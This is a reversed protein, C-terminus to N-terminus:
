GVDGDAMRRTAEESTMPGIVDPTSTAAIWAATSPSTRTVTTVCGEILDVSFEYWVELRTLFTDGKVTTGRRIFVPCRDCFDYVDISTTVTLATPAREERLWSGHRVIKGDVIEIEDMLCDLDKTQLQTFPHGESCVFRPDGNPTFYDFMGMAAVCEEHPTKSTVLGKARKFM